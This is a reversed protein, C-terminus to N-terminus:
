SQSTPSTTSRDMAVRECATLASTMFAAFVEAQPDRLATATLVAGVWGNRHWIGGGALPGYRELDDTDSPHPWATVYWYADAYNSDGPTMGAGVTRTLEDGEREIELLTAIDFHHPWCRVAGARPDQRALESLARHGNAYWRTLETLALETWGGFPRAEGDPDIPHTPLAHTPRSLRLEPQALCRGVARQLLEFAAAVPVGDLPWAEVEREDALLVLTPPDFRLLARLRPESDTPQGLLGGHSDSWELSTHSDDAEAPALTTGVAAVLQAAWHLQLRTDALDSARPRVLRQWNGITDVFDIAMATLSGRPWGWPRPHLLAAGIPPSPALPPSVHDLLLAPPAALDGTALAAPTCCVLCRM